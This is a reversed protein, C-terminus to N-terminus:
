SAEFASDGKLKAVYVAELYEAHSDCYYEEYIHKVLVM